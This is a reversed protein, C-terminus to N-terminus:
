WDYYLVIFVFSTNENLCCYIKTYFQFIYMNYYLSDHTKNKNVGVIKLAAM